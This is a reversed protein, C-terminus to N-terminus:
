PRKLLEIRIGDPDAIFVLEGFGEGTDFKTRTSRLITGGLKVLRQATSDVDDVEFSLHTLGLQGRSGSPKGQPEPQDFALLEISVGDRHLYQVTVSVEGSVELAGSFRTDVLMSRDLEFGLGDRYFPLSRAM